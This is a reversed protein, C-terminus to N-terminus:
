QHLNRRLGFAGGAAAAADAGRSEALQRPVCLKDPRQEFASELIEDGCYLQYSVDRLAGLPQDLVTDVVVQDDVVQMAQQSFTWERTADLYYTEDSLERIIDNPEPNGLQALASAKCTGPRKPM